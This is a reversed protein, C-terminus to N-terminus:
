GGVGEYLKIMRNYLWIGALLFLGCPILMLLVFRPANGLLAACPFFGIMAVPIVFMTVARLAKPFIGAPYKGFMRVSDFLEPIRSNGIWKFSIAAMILYLGGMVAAGALFLLVFQLWNGIGPSAGSFALSVGAMAGGGLFLSFSEPNFNNSLMYLLPHMPRLLILEYTGERIHGMTDWVIGEFVLSSLGLSLTYIGQLLLVEWVSWDPFSAGASYILVTVVPFLLNSLLTIVTGLLFSSRYTMARALATKVCTFYIRMARKM